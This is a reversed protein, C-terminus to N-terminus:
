KLVERRRKMIKNRIDLKERGKATKLQALLKKYKKDLLLIAKNNERITHVWRNEIRRFTTADYPINNDDELDDYPSVEEEEQFDEYEDNEDNDSNFSNWHFYPM